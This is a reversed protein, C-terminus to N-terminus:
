TRPPASSIAPPTTSWAPSRARGRGLHAAGDRGGRRLRPHGRRAHARARRATGDTGERDAELVGGRRGAIWLEAGLQLYQAAIEKGLGTGGGTILIRKGKLLGDKFM